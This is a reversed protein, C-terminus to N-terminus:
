FFFRVVLWSVESGVGVTGETRENAELEMKEDEFVKQWTRQWM